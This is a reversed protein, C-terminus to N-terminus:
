GNSKLIEPKPFDEFVKESAELEADPLGYNELENAYYKEYSGLDLLGHGSYNFLIVKEEGTEKAKKAEEM